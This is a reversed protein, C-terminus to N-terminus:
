SVVLVSANKVGQIVKSSVSGFFFESASSIGRKGIVVVDYGSDAKKIIDRAVGKELPVIKSHIKGEEFGTSLLYRSAEKAATELLEKKQNELACFAARERQFTPTLSPSNYECISKHDQLVSFLTIDSDKDLLDGAFKVARMANESDDMAILIKKSM